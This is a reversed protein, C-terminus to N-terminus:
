RLEQRVADLAPDYHRDAWRIYVWTLMWCSVIVMSGLLIGLTLGPILEIALLPKNWAILAIFGFYLVVVLTTLLGAVRRRAQGLTRLRDAPATV